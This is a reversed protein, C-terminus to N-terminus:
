SAARPRRPRIVATVDCSSVMRGMSDRIEVHVVEEIDAVGDRVSRVRDLQDASLQAVARVRGRACAHFDIVGRKMVIYSSLARDGLTTVVVGVGAMEALSFLVGASVDGNHNVHLEGPEHALVLMGDAMGEPQPNIMRVWPFDFM